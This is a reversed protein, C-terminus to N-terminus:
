GRRVRHLGGASGMRAVRRVTWVAGMRGVTVFRVGVVQVVVQVRRPAAMRLVTVLIATIWCGSM